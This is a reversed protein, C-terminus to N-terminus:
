NTYPFTRYLINNNAFLEIIVIETTTTFLHHTYKQTNTQSHNYFIPFYVIFMKQKYRKQKINIYMYM